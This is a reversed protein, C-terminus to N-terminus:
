DPMLNQYIPKGGWYKVRLIGTIAFSDPKNTNFPASFYGKICINSPKIEQGLYHVALVCM